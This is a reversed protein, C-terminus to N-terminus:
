PDEPRNLLEKIKEIALDQLEPSLKRFEEILKTEEM